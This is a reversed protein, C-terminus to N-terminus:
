NLIKTKFKSWDSAKTEIIDTILFALKKNPSGM